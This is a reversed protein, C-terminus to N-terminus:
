WEVPGPWGEVMLGLRTRPVGAVARRALVQRAVCGTDHALNRLGDSRGEPDPVIPQGLDPESRIRCLSLKLRCRLHESAGSATVHPEIPASRASRQTIPRRIGPVDREGDRLNPRCPGLM